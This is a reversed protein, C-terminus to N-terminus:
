GLQRVAPQRRARYQDPCQVADGYLVGVVDGPLGPDDVGGVGKVV